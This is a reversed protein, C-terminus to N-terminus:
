LVMFSTSASSRATRFTISTNPHDALQSVQILLDDEVVVLAGAVELLEIGGIAASDAVVREAAVVGGDGEGEVTGHHTAGRELPAAASQRLSRRGQHGLRDRALAAGLDLVEEHPKVGHHRSLRAGWRRLVESLEVNERSDAL